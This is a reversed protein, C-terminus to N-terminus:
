NCRRASLERRQQRASRANQGRLATANGRRLVIAAERVRTRHPREGLRGQKELHKDKKSKHM